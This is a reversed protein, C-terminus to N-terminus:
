GDGNVVQNYLGLATELQDVAVWENAAHAQEINGPGLVLAPLGAASFVSAETWFDVADGVPLGHEKCFARSFAEDRCSAPLPEGMFPVEWETNSSDAACAQIENLFAENSEGPQLRASWHVFATAAIVNSKSGGDVIGINFCTAPDQPSSKRSEALRLAGAAWRAMQHNANEQLARAASSHGPEGKFLTKVSLFGRHGLVARCSTPEAVIVQEFPEAEGADLFHSVCCGGAGEEDSTFLLAMNDPGQEALALLAAAAGKIDCAGRGYARGNRVSLERPNRSWGDGDPVTDLHVNFLVGPSGRRAFWSVHGDGHDRIRVDFGDGAVATCYDFIESDASIQRPPNQTDCAVLAELHGLLASQNM